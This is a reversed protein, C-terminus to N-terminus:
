VLMCTNYITLFRLVLGEWRVVYQTLIMPSNLRVSMSLTLLIIVLFMLDVYLQWVKKSTDPCTWWVIYLTLIQPYKSEAGLYLTLWTNNQGCIWIPKLFKNETDLSEYAQPYQCKNEKDHDCLKTEYFTLTLDDFGRTM